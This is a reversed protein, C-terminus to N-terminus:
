ESTCVRQEDEDYYYVNVSIATNQEVFKDIQNLQVPFAIGKFNLENRYRYYHMPNSGNQKVRHLASLIAWKFCMEDNLNKVNVVARKLEINKPTKIYSSGGLPEYSCVTAELEIIRSLTFGSGRLELNEVLKIIENNISMEYHEELATEIGIVISSTLLYFTQKITKEINNDINSDGDIHNENFVKKEFEAVFTAHTKVIHYENLIRLIESEYICYVDNLFVQLNTHTKNVISFIQVRQEFASNRVQLEVRESPIAM